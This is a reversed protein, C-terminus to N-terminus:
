LSAITERLGASGINKVIRANGSIAVCDGKNIVLMERGTNEINTDINVELKSLRASDPLQLLLYGDTNPTVAATLPFNCADVDPSFLLDTWTRPEIDMSAICPLHLGTQM